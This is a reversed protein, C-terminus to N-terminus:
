GLPWPLYLPAVVSLIVVNLMAVNLVVVSLVIVNPMVIFLVSCETYCCLVVALAM